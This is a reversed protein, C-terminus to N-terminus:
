QPLPSKLTYTRQESATRKESPVTYVWEPGVISGMGNSKSRTPGSQLVKGLPRGVRCASHSGLSGHTRVEDGPKCKNCFVSCWMPCYRCLTTVPRGHHTFIPILYDKDFISWKSILWNGKKKDHPIVNGQLLFFIASM